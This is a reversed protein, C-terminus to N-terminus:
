MSLYETNCYVSQVTCKQRDKQYMCPSNQCYRHRRHHLMCLKNPISCNLNGTMCLEMSNDPKSTVIRSAICDSDINTGLELGMSDRRRSKRNSKSQIMSNLKDRMNKLCPERSSLVNTSKWICQLFIRSNITLSKSLNRYSSHQRSLISCSEIDKKSMSKINGLMQACICLQRHHLDIRM